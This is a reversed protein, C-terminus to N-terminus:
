HQIEIKNNYNLSASKVSIMYLGNMLASLDIATVGTGENMNISSKYVQRGTVDSITIIGKEAAKESWQINLRGNTPNPFVSVSSVTPTLPSVGTTGPTITKSLTHQIFSATSYSPAAASVTIGTFPTTLYNLSDPFVTYTGYPINTFSYAGTADTYTMQQINGTTTNMAVLHLNVAPITGSTGRNAGTLVSGGIFGPGTTTTGTLMNINENIDSTGATHYIVNADHWYFFSNHYTPLFGTSGVSDHVAAKVRFSDTALGTFQYYVSTGSCYVTMSDAAELDFTSPNYTILYVKVNGSYGGTFSVYGSIGDLSTINVTTTAYETTGCSVYSYTITATGVSVGTINGSADITAVTTPSISWTGSTYGTSGYYYCSGTGGISIAGPGYVTGPAVPGVTITYTSYVSGCGGGSVTATITVTGNSVGTVVGSSAGVTAIATNSSSWSYGSGGTSDNLTISSDPCVQTPGTIVPAATGLVTDMATAHCGGVTYYVWVAGPTVGTAVGTSPNISASGTYAATSWVGGPTADMLTTTSGVCFSTSGTIAAPMPDVTFTGTVYSGGLTYTITVVGTSVPTLYGSTGITAITTNSSSWTGGPSLSDTLYLGSSICIDGSSPTFPTVTAFGAISFVIALLTLAFHKM